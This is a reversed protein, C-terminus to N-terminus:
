ELVDLVDLVGAGDIIIESTVGFTVVSVGGEAGAGLNPAVSEIGLKVSQNILDVGKNFDDKTIHYHDKSELIVAKTTETKTTNSNDGSPTSTNDGGSTTVDTDSGECYIIGTLYYIVILSITIKFFALNANDNKYYIWFSIIFSVFYSGISLNIYYSFLLSIITLTFYFYNNNLLNNIIKDGDIQKNKFLSLTVYGYLKKIVILKIKM